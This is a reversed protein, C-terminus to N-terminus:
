KGYNAVVSNYNFINLGAIAQLLDISDVKGDGDLDGPIASLPQEGLAYYTGVPLVHAFDPDWSTPQSCTLKYTTLYAKLAPHANSILNFPNTRTIEWSRHDVVEGAPGVEANGFLRIGQWGNKNNYLMLPYNFNLSATVPPQCQSFPLHSDLKSSVYLDTGLGPRYEGTMLREVPGFNTSIDTEIWRNSTPNWNVQYIFEQANITRTFYVTPIRNVQDEIVVVNSHFNFNNPGLNCCNATAFENYDLTPGWDRGDASIFHDTTFDFFVLRKPFISNDYPYGGHGVFENFTMWVGNRVKDQTMYNVYITTPGPENPGVNHVISSACCSDRGAPCHNDIYSGDPNKACEQCSPHRGPDIVIARPTWTRGSDSSKVLAEPEYWAPDPLPRSSGESSRFFVYIEGQNDTFTAGYTNHCTNPINGVQWDSVSTGVSRPAKSTAHLINIGANHYTHFVHLFGQNDLAIQSYNHDDGPVGLSETQALKIASQWSHTNHNFAMVYPDLASHVGDLRLGGAYVLFTQNSVPDYVGASLTKAIGPWNPGEGMAFNTRFISRNDISGVNWSVSGLGTFVAQAKSAVVLCILGVPVLLLKKM